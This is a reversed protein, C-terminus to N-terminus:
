PICVEFYWSEVLDGISLVANSVQRPRPTSKSSREKEEKFVIGGRTVYRQFVGKNEVVEGLSM